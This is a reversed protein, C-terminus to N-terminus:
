SSIPSSSRLPSSRSDSFERRRPESSIQAILADEGADRLTRDIHSLVEVLYAGTGCCPDLVYVSEDALGDRIDLEEKLVRDVREVMYRVVERPTYWVGLQQRLEPDFAELFPEYFYQVAGEEEFNSFFTEREVRNLLEGTRDMIERIGLAEMTTRLTLQEFLSRILPVNLTYAALRWDFREESSYSTRKSWLVWASFVGYFLTQVLTSRFFHEGSDGEFGVGLARELTDRVIRLSRSEGGSSRSELRSLSERAYSALFWALDEARRIPAGYALTRALFDTFREAHEEDHVRRKALRWFEDGSDALTFRELTIADGEDDQGVLMFDRYNTVLVQGYRKLYRGVQEGRAIEEVHEKLGKVEVAGRSPLQAPWSGGDRNERGFQDSTFLGGDPTGSGRNRPNIVVRVRPNMREGVSNFLTQLAGYGSVEVAAEGSSYDEHLSRLYGELMRGLM